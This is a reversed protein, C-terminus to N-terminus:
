PNKLDVIFLPKQQSDALCVLRFSSYNGNGLVFLISGDVSENIALSNLKNDPTTIGLTDSGNWPDNWASVSGVSSRSQFNLYLHKNPIPFDRNPTGMRQITVNVYYDTSSNPFTRDPTTTYGNVTMSTAPYPIGAIEEGTKYSAYPLTEWYSNIFSAIILATVLVIVIILVKNRM